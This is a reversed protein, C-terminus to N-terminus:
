NWIPDFNQNYKNREVNVVKECEHQLIKITHPATPKGGFYAKNRTIVCHKPVDLQTADVLYGNIFFWCTKTEYDFSIRLNNKSNIDVVGVKTYNRIGKNYVYSFLQIKGNRCNWGFRASTTHVYGFTVGFLKNIHEGDNENKSYLCSNTFEFTKQDYLPKRFVIHPRFQLSWHWGKPIIIKRIM